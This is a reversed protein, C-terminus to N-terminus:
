ADIPEVTLVNDSQYKVFLLYAVDFLHVACWIITDSTWIGAVMICRYEGTRNCETSRCHEHEPTPRTAVIPFTM